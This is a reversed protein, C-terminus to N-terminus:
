ILCSSNWKKNKGKTLLMKSAKKVKKQSENSSLNLSQFPTNPTNCTVVSKYKRMIIPTQFPSASSGIANVPSKLQAAPSKM